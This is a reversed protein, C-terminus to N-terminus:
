EVDKGVKKALTRFRRWGPLELLNNQRTYVTCSVLDDAANVLLLKNTTEGNEWLITLNYLSRKYGAHSKSLPGQHGIIDNFKWVIDDDDDKALYDMVQNYTLIDDYTEDNINCRFRVNTSANETQDQHDKIAEIIHLHTLQGDEQTIGITRGVLEEPHIIPM